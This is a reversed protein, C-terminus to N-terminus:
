PSDPQLCQQPRSLGRDLLSTQDNMKRLREDMNWSARSMNRSRGKWRVREARLEAGRDRDGESVRV